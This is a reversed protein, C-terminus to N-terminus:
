RGLALGSLMAIYRQLASYPWNNRKTSNQDFDPM